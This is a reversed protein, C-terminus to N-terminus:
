RRRREGFPDAAVDGINKLTGFEDGPQTLEQDLRSSGRGLLCSLDEEFLGGDPALDDGVGTHLHLSQGPLKARPPRNRAPSAPRSSWRAGARSRATSSVACNM